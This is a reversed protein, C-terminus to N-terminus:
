NLCSQYDIEILPITSEPKRTRQFILDKLSLLERRNFILALNQQMSQIPIKRKFMVRNCCTEWQEIDITTVFRQFARMEAKTFELYINNFILHYINCAECYLLAGDNNKSLTSLEHCM